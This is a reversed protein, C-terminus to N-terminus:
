VQLFNKMIEFINKDKVVQSIIKLYINSHDVTEALESLITILKDKDDASFKKAPNYLESFAFLEVIKYTVVFVSFNLSISGSINFPYLSTFFENVLYNEFITSFNNTFNKHSESLKLYNEAVRNIKVNGDADFDFKLIKVLNNLYKQHRRDYAYLKGFLNGFIIKVFETANFNVASLITELNQAIFNEATYTAVLAHIKDTENKAVFEQLQDLFFGLVVLRQDITLSREQLISVTAFQIDFIKEVIKSNLNHKKSGFNILFEVPIEVQEFIMPEDSEFILKAAVPCTLDLFSECFTGFDFIRRPYTRCVLSLYDEGYKKQLKCFNDETLFPCFKNEDHLIFHGGSKKDTSINLLVNKSDLQPKIKKYRKYTDEDVEINWGKCCKASCVVGDCQFKSFYEPRFCLIKKQM